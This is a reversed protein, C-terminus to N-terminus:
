RRAKSVTAGNARDQMNTNSPWCAMAGLRVCDGGVLAARDRWGIQQLGAIEGDWSLILPRCM